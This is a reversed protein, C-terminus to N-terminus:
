PLRVQINYSKIKSNLTTANLGLLRAARSQHGGTQDLARRILDIEYNKIEDYFVTFFFKCGNPLNDVKVHIPKGQIEVSSTGVQYPSIKCGLQHSRKDELKVGNSRKNDHSRRIEWKISFSSCSLNQPVTLTDFHIVKGDINKIEYEVNSKVNIAIAKKTIM